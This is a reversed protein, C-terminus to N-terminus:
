SIRWVRAGNGEKRVSFRAKTRQQFKQIRRSVRQTETDPVFFSDGVEMEYVPYKRLNEKPPIPVNKEIKHM